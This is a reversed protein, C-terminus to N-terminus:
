KEEEEEDIDSLAKSLVEYEALDMNYNACDINNRHPKAQIWAMRNALLEMREGIYKREQETM